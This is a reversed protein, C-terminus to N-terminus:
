KHHCWTFKTLSQTALPTQLFTNHIGSIIMSKKTLDHMSTEWMFCRSSFRRSFFCTFLQRQLNQQFLKLTQVMHIGCAYHVIPTAYLCLEMQHVSDCWQRSSSVVTLFATGVEFYRKSFTGQSHPLKAGSHQKGISKYDSHSLPSERM